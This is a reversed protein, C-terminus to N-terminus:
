SSTQIQSLYLRKEQVLLSVPEDNDMIQSTNSPRLLRWWHHEIQWGSIKIDMPVGYKTYNSKRLVTSIYKTYINTSKVVQSWLFWLVVCQEANTYDLLPTITNTGHSCLRWQTYCTAASMCLSPAAHPKHLIQLLMTQCLVLM